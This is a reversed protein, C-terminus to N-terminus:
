LIISNFHQVRHTLLNLFSLVPWLVPFPWNENWDWLLAIGFFTWLSFHFHFNSLLKLSRTAGHALCDLSNELGFYQLLYGNGEWPSRGLRPILGLYVITSMECAIMTTWLIRWALSWCDMFWSSGSICAPNLFSLPVLSWIWLIQQSMSFALSNWFFVQRM